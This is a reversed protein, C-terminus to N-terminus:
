VQSPRVGKEALTVKLHSIQLLGKPNFLIQCFGIDHMATISNM